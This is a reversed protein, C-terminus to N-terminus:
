IYKNFKIQAKTSFMLSAIYSFLNGLHWLELELAIIKKRLEAPCPSYTVLHWPGLSSLTVPRSRRSLLCAYGFRSLSQTPLNVRGNAEALAGGSFQDSSITSDCTKLTQPDIPTLLLHPHYNKEGVIESGPLTNYNFWTDAWIQVSMCANMALLCSLRWVIQGSLAIIDWGPSGKAAGVAGQM